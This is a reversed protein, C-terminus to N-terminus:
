RGPAADLVLVGVQDVVVRTEDEGENARGELGPRRSGVVDLQDGGLPEGVPPDRGQAVDLGALLEGAGRPHDHVRGTGEDVLQVGRPAGLGVMPDDERLPDMEDHRPEGPTAVVPDEGEEVIRLSEEVDDRHPTPRDDAGGVGPDIIGVGRDGVLVAVEEDTLDVGAHVEFTREGGIVDDRLAGPHAWQHHRSGLTTLVLGPALGVPGREAALMLDLAVVFALHDGHEPALEGVAQIHPGLDGVLDAM